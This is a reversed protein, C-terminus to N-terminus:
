KPLMERAGAPLSQLIAWLQSTKQIRDGGEPHYKQEKALVASRYDSSVQTQGAEELLLVRM